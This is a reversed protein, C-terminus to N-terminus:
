AKAYDTSESLARHEAIAKQIQALKAEAMSVADTGFFLHLPPSTLRYAEILAAALKQPDGPQNGHISDLHQTESARAAEYAAIPRAPRAVSDKDLFNTRFYGPYVLTVKVGFPLLDAHLAESL